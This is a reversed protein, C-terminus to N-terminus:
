NKILLFYIYLFNGDTTINSSVVTYGKNLFTNVETQTNEVFADACSLKGKSKIIIKSEM